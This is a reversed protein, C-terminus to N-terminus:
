VCHSPDHERTRRPALSTSSKFKESLDCGHVYWQVSKKNNNNLTHLKLTNNPKWSHKQLGTLTHKLQVDSFAGTNQKQDNLNQEVILLLYM